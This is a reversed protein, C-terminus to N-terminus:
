RKVSHMPHWAWNNFQEQNLSEVHGDLMAVNGMNGHTLYVGYAQSSFDKCLICYFAVQPTVNTRISDGLIIAATPDNPNKSNPPGQAFGEVTYTWGAGHQSPGQHFGYTHAYNGTNIVNQLDKSGPCTVLDLSEIGFNKKNQPLYNGSALITTWPTSNRSPATLNNAHDTAYMLQCLALTKLNGRCNSAQAAARSSALAPLLMAALIAIIAIVVLLEILTFVARKRM